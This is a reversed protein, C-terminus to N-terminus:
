EQRMDVNLIAVGNESIEIEGRHPKYGTAKVVVKYSGKPLAIEFRGQSDTDVDAVQRGRRNLVTVKAKLPTSGFSRVLGRLLGGESAEPALTRAAQEPMGAYVDTEWSQAQFGQATAQLSVHGFPVDAFLYRGSGNTVTELESGAVTLTVVAEPLPAGTDDLVLGTLSETLKLVPAATTTEKAAQVAAVPEPKVWADYRVGVNISFRPEIPVLPDSPRIHPRSSFLVTANAEAALRYKPFFHRAGVSVRWPSDALPPAKPGFLIDATAEGFLVLDPLVHYTAGLGALFAHSDSLGLAIRDGPRLRRLDPASNASDDIRFGLNSVLSFPKKKPRWAVLAKLDASTAKPEFSPANNGPFWIAAEAGVSFSKPLAHGARLILRPAGTGTMDSGRSDSPHIDIRGDLNLALALWPLPTYAAALTGSARTHAGSVSGMSETYGYGATAALTVRQVPCTPLGLTVLGCLGTSNAGIEREVPRTVTQARGTSAGLLASAFVFLTLL